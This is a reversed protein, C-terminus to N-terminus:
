PAWPFERRAVDDLEAPFHLSRIAEPRDPLGAAHYAPSEILGLHEEVIGHMFRRLWRQSLGETLPYVPVIRNVHITADRDRICM